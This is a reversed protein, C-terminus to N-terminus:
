GFDSMMFPSHPHEPAELQLLVLEEGREVGKGRRREGKRERCRSVEGMPLQPVLQEHALQPLYILGVDCRRVRGRRM